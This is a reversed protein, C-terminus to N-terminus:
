KKNNDSALMTVHTKWEVPSMTKLQPIESAAIVLQRVTPLIPFEVESKTKFVKEILSLKEDRWGDHPAVGHSLYGLAQLAAASMESLDRALPEAERMVPSKDAMAYITPHVKHWEVLLNEIGERYLSFRPADGLLAEVMSSFQRAARSDPGAVDVLRTLPTMQTIPNVRERGLVKLPEVVGALTKLPEVEPSGALRRLMRDAYTEHTLGFEELHVSVIALRRYMDAVDTVDRPSWFREAIAAMRPWIRSDINEPGVYEGWMCAEGGLIRTEEEATLGSDAHVPDVAYHKAAPFLHDLYYGSSLIGTYGQKAGDAM